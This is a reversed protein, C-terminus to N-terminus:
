REEPGITTNIKSPSFATTTLLFSIPAVLGLSASSFVILFSYPIEISLFETWPESEM